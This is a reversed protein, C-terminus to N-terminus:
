RGGGTACGHGPACRFLQHQGLTGAPIMEAVWRGDGGPVAAAGCNVCALGDIQDETLGTRAEVDEPQDITVGLRDGIVHLADEIRAVGAEVTAVQDVLTALRRATATMVALGDVGFGVPPTPVNTATVPPGKGPPRGPTAAM